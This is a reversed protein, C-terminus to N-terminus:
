ILEYALIGCITSFLPHYPGWHLHLAAIALSFYYDADELLKMGYFARILICYFKISEAHFPHTYKLGDMAKEKAVNFDGLRLAIECLDAITQVCESGELM